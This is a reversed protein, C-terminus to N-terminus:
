MEGLSAIDDNYCLLIGAIQIELLKFLFDSDDRIILETTLSLFIGIASIAIYWCNM